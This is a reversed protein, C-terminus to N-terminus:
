AKRVYPPFVRAVREALDAAARDDRGHRRGSELLMSVMQAPSVVWVPGPFEAASAKLVGGTVQSGHVVVLPWVADAPLSLRQAARRAYSAVKEIQQHRDETGCHVRDRVLWTPKQAHWQKSDVIVVGTGGPATLVHDLDATSGPLARRHVILWGSALLPQLMARTAAEGRDGIKQRQARAWAHPDVRPKWWARLRRWVAGM